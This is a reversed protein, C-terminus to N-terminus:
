KAIFHVFNSRCERVRHTFFAVWKALFVDAFLRINKHLEKLASDICTPMLAPVQQLLQRLKRGRITSVDQGCMAEAIKDDKSTCPCNM